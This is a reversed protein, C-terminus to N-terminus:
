TERRGLARFVWESSVPYHDIVAGLDSLAHEVASVVAAAAPITGGEGAGKAGLPNFPAPTEFHIKTLPPMGAATMIQYDMLTTALPQGSDSYPLRELLANGLGHAVGGDIQGDVIMPNLITGCDHVVTYRAVETHGTEQDIEVEAIHTGYTFALGDFPLVSEVSLGPRDRGEPLSAGLKPQVAAALDGLAIESGPQGTVMAKGGHLVIDDEAAELKRAAIEKVLAALEGAALHVVAVSTQASRSAVAGIGHAYRGTDGGHIRVRGPDVGLHHSVVQTFVTHHGQGQSAAGIELTVEGTTLVELRAGEYPGLGTDEVYCALGWGRRRGRDMSETRRSEFGALDAATLAAELAAPYDGSDYTIPRGDSGTLELRYPLSEPPILNRRRIEARDLDLQRAIADMVRELVFTANPRGAGRIAGTPTTNTFVCDIRAQLAPVVYPGSMLRVTTMPVVVGYPVYAGLDHILEARLGLVKGDDDFAVEIEGAQGRQHCTSTFHERRRETWCVPRGVELALRSIVYEEPYVAAKPGFGGGVDPAIVRVEDPSLGLYAALQARVAHPSQTSTWVTLRAEGQDWRALVGRGEMFLAAGRHQDLDLSLHHTARSFARDLDGFQATLTAALNSTAGHHVAPSSPHLARRHDSVAPLSHYAVMVAEAADIAEALTPAVVVALPQGVYCVENIALPPPQLPQIILPSPNQIPLPRELGLDAATFFRARGQYAHDVEIDEILAHAEVSRVFVAHLADAGALDAVYRGKGTILRQDEVRRLPQGIM